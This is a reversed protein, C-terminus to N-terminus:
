SQPSRSQRRRPKLSHQSSQAAQRSYEAVLYRLRPYSALLAPDVEHGDSLARKVDAPVAGKLWTTLTNASTSAGTEAKAQKAIHLDSAQPHQQRLTLLEFYTKVTNENIKLSEEGRGLIDGIIKHTLAVGFEDFVRQMIQDHSRNIDQGLELVRRTVPLGVVDTTSRLGRTSMELIKQANEQRGKASLFVPLEVAAQVGERLSIRVTDRGNWTSSVGVRELIRHVLGSIQETQIGIERPNVSAWGDGDFLGQLVKTQFDKPAQLVWDIKAPTNSHTQGAEFGLVAEKFWTLFPTAISYWNHAGHPDRSQPESGSGPKAPIGLTTWYYATRDGFTHSWDYKKSLEIAFINSFVSQRTITGDSLSTGILYALANIKEEATSIPGFRNTWNELLQKDPGFEQLQRALYHDPAALTPLACVVPILDKHDTITPPAQIYRAALNSTDTTTPLWRQDPAPPTGPINAALRVLYPRNSYRLADSIEDKTLHFHVELDRPYYGAEVLRLAALYQSATSLQEIFKPDNVVQDGFMFHSPNLRQALDHVAKIGGDLDRLTAVRDQYDKLTAAREELLTLLHPRQKDTVWTHLTSKAIGAYDTLATTPLRGDTRQPPNDRLQFYLQAQRNLQDFRPHEQILPFARLAQEYTTRDTIQTFTTADLPKSADSGGRLALLLDVAEPTFTGPRLLQERYTPDRAARLIADTPTAPTTDTHDLDHRATATTRDFDLLWLLRPQQDGTLWRRVQEPYTGVTDAITPITTDGRTLADRHSLAHFYTDCDARLDPFDPRERLHPHQDLAADLTAADRIPELQPSQAPEDRADTPVPTREEPPTFQFSEPPSHTEREALSDAPPAINEEHPAGPHDRDREPSASSHSETDDPASDAAHPPPLDHAPETHEPSDNPTDTPPVEADLQDLLADRTDAEDDTPPHEHLDWHAAAIHLDDHTDEEPTPTDTTDNATTEPAHTADDPENSDTADRTEPTEPQENPDAADAPQDDSPTDSHDRHEPPM